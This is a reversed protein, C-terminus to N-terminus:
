ARDRRARAIRRRRVPTRRDSGVLGGLASLILLLQAYWMPRFVFLRIAKGPYHRSGRSRFLVRSRCRRHAPAGGRRDDDVWGGRARAARGRDALERRLGVPVVTLATRQARVLAARAGPSREASM